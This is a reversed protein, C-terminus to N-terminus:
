DEKPLQLQQKKYCSLLQEYDDTVELISDIDAIQLECEWAEQRNYPYTYHGPWLELFNSLEKQGMVLYKPLKGNEEKFSDIKQAVTNYFENSNMM